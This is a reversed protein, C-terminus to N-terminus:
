QRAGSITFIPMDPVLKDIRMVGVVDRIQHGSASTITLEQTGNDKFLLSGSQSGSYNIVVDNNTWDMLSPDFNYQVTPMVCNAYTSKTCILKSAPKNCTLTQANCESGFEWGTFTYDGCDHCRYAVRSQGCRKCTYTTISWSTTTSNCWQCYGTGPEDTITCDSTSHQYHTYCSSDHTHYEYCSSTHDHRCGDGHGMDIPNAWANHAPMIGIVILMILSIIFRSHRKM